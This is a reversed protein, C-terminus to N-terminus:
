GKLVKTSKLKDEFKRPKTTFKAKGQDRSNLKSKNCRESQHQIRSPNIPPEKFFQVPVQSRTLVSQFHFVLPTSHLCTLLPSAWKM